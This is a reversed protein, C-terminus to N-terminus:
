IFNSVFDNFFMLGKRTMIYVNDKKELYGKKTLDDFKEKEEEEVLMGKGIMRFGLLYKYQRIEEASLIEEEIFPCELNDIKKYYETFNISNKYRKNGLYGAASLGLGLYNKNEWYITNHRSRLNKKSFNSIEYHEYLNQEARKIIKEYMQAEIENEVEKLNGLMLDKYFSTGEEWILSYISFHEPDLLFLKNLDEELEKLNQNPLAFMLDLSINDFGLSRAEKFIKIAESSNHIRGLLKLYDNNFSQVGISLRNIGIKKYEKLKDKDITKPNIEITIETKEDYNFQKLIEKLNEIPLLSPTGGGFYITDQKQNLDYERKYLEIEKLLYETYKSSLNESFKFSTFDCYNCKKECFPIHIYTNYIKLTNKSDM